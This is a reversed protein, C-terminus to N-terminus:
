QYVMLNYRQTFRSDCNNVGPQVEYVCLLGCPCLTLKFSTEKNVLFANIAHQQMLKQTEKLFQSFVAYIVTM